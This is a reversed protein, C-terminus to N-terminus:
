KPNPYDTALGYAAGAVAGAVGGIAAGTKAGGEFGALTGPPGGASGAVAGVAGGVVSGGVAGNKAWKVAANAMDSGIEGWSRGGVANDLQCVDIELLKDTLTKELTTQQNLEFMLAVPMGLHPQESEASM